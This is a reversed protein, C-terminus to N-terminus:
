TSSDNGLDLICELINMIKFYIFFETDSYAISFFPSSRLFSDQVTAHHASM